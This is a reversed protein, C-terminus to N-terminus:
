SPSDGYVRSSYISHLVRAYHWWDFAGWREGFWVTATMAVSCGLLVGVEAPKVSGAEYTGDTCVWLIGICVTLLFLNSGVTNAIMIGMHGKLGSLCAVFKEPITTAISLIVVGFLVDSINWQDVLNTAANSLVYSSLVVAAFGFAFICFHYALSRDPQITKTLNAGKPEIGHAPLTSLRPSRNRRLYDSFAFRACMVTASVAALDNDHRDSVTAVDMAARTDRIDDRDRPEEMRTLRMANDEVPTIPERATGDFSRHEMESVIVNSDTDSNSDSGGDSNTLEEPATSWGKAILTAISAIYLGFLGIFAGGVAQWYIRHAFGLLGATLGTLALLLSTYIKSSRDFLAAKSCDKKHLLLGLSFAGIINSIASGVINGMALSSRQPNNICGSRCATDSDSHLAKLPSSSPESGGM